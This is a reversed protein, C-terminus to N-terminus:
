AFMCILIVISYTDGEFISVNISHSALHRGLPYKDECM